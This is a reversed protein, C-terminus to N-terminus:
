ICGMSKKEQKIQNHYKDLLWQVPRVVVCLSWHGSYSIPILTFDKSFLDLVKTWRPLLPHQLKIATFLAPFFLCSFVHFRSYWEVEAHRSEVFFMIKLDILSDNLWANQSIRTVDSQVITIVGVGSTQIPYTMYLEDGARPVPIPLVNISSDNNDLDMTLDILHHLPWISVTQDSINPETTLHSNVDLSSKTSAQEV